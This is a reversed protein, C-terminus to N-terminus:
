SRLNECCEHSLYQPALSWQRGPQATRGLEWTGGVRDKGLLRIESPLQSKSKGKWCSPQQGHEEGMEMSTTHKGQVRLGPTNLLAPLPWHCVHTEPCGTSPSLSNRLSHLTPHSGSCVCGPTIVIVLWLRGLFWLSQPLPNHPSIGQAKWRSTSVTTTVSPVIAQQGVM